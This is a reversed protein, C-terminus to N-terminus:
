ERLTWEPLPHAPHSKQHEAWKGVAPATRPVDPVAVHVAMGPKVHRESLTPGMFIDYYTQSESDIDPYGLGNDGVNCMPIEMFTGGRCCPGERARSESLHHGIWPPREAHSVRPEMDTVRPPHFM